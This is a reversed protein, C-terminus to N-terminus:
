KVKVSSELFYKIGNLIDGDVFKDSNEKIFAKVKSEDVILWALPVAELSVVEHKWTKKINTSSSNAIVSKKAEIVDFQPVPAVVPAVIEQKVGLYEDRMFLYTEEHASGPFQVVNLKAKGLKSIRDKINADYVAPFAIVYNTYVFSLDAPTTAENILKFARAEFEGMQTILAQQSAEAEQQLIGQQRELEILIAQNNAEVKKNYELLETEVHLTAPALPAKLTRKALDASQCFRLAEEKVLAHRADVEKDLQKAKSLQQNAVAQSTEDTVKILLLNKVHEDISAKLKNFEELGKENVVIATESM